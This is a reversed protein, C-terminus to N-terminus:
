NVEVIKDIYIFKEVIKEVPVEVEKIIKLINNKFIM